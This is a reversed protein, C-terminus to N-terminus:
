SAGGVIRCDACWEALAEAEAWFMINQAEDAHAECPTLRPGAQIEHVPLALKELRAAQEDAAPLGKARLARALNGFGERLEERIPGSALEAEGKDAVTRGWEILGREAATTSM